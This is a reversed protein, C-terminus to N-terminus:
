GQEERAGGDCEGSQGDVSDEEGVVVEDLEEDSAVSLKTILCSSGNERNRTPLNGPRDNTNGAWGVKTVEELYM